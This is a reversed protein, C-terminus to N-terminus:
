LKGWLLLQKKDRPVFGKKLYYKKNYYVTNSEGAVMSLVAEGSALIIYKETEETLIYHKKGFNGGEKIIGRNEFGSYESLKLQSTSLEGVCGNPFKAAVIDETFGYVISIKEKPYLKGDDTRYCQSDLYYKNKFCVINNAFKSHIKNYIKIVNEKNIYGKKVKISKTKDIKAQTYLEIVMNQKLVFGGETLEAIHKTDYKSYYTNKIIVIHEKKVYGKYKKINVADKKSIYNNTFVELIANPDLVRNYGDRDGLYSTELLADKSNVISKIPHTHNTFVGKKYYLYNFTDTYPLHTINKVTIDKIYMQEHRSKSDNYHKFGENKAFNIFLGLQSESSYYVRDMYTVPNKLNSIIVNRWILARALIKNKSDLIVAIEVGNKEYFNLAKQKAKGRMCSYGLCGKGKRAYNAELYAYKVKNSPYLIVKEDKSPPCLIHLIASCFLPPNLEPCYDKFHEALERYPLGSTTKTYHIYCNGDSCSVDLADIIDNIKLNNTGTLKYYQQLVKKFNTTMNM